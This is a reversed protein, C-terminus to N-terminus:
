SACVQHNAFVDTVSSMASFISQSRAVDFLVSQFRNDVMLMDESDVLFRTDMEAGALAGM